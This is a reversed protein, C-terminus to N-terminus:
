SAALSSIFGRPGNLQALGGGRFSASSRHTTTRDRRAPTGRGDPCHPHRPTVLYGGDLGWTVADLLPDNRLPHLHRRPAEAGTGSAGPLSLIARGPRFRRNGCYRSSLALPAASQVDAAGLPLRCRVRPEVPQTEALFCGGMARLCFAYAVSDNQAETLCLRGVTTLGTSCATRVRGGREGRRGTRLPAEKIM